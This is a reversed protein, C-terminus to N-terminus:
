LTSVIIFCVTLPQRENRNTFVYVDYFLHRASEETDIHWDQAQSSLVRNIDDAHPFIHAAKSETEYACLDLSKIFM